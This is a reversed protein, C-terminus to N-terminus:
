RDGPEPDLDLWRREEALVIEIAEGIVAQERLAQWAAEDVLVTRRRRFRRRLFKRM